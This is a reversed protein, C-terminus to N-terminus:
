AQTEELKHFTLDSPEFMIIGKSGCKPCAVVTEKKKLFATNMQGCKQCDWTTWINKM